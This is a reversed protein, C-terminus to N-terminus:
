SSSSLCLAALDVGYGFPPFGRCGLRPSFLQGNVHYAFATAPVQKTALRWAVNGADATRARGVQARLTALERRVSPPLWSSPVAGGLLGRLFAAPDPFDQFTSAEFLDVDTGRRRVETHLDAVEKIDVEIGIPALQRKVNEGWLRCADCDSAVALTATVDRGGMLARAGALDPAGVPYPERCSRYGPQSPPLLQASPVGPVTVAGIDNVVVRSGALGSRNLALAAARRVSPDSFPPRNANFALAEVGPTPVAFYRRQGEAAARSEPGWRAALAGTPDLIPDDLNVIGDWSGDEVRAVAQGPDIGERLAIADLVHARPGTYNPNRKLIMYEGTNFDAIYYPGASPITRQHGPASVAAGVDPVGIPSGVPVPCFFPLALRELLDASPRRLTITLTDDRARIGSIHDERGARFATEGVIDGIFGPGPARRPMRPSLAREISYSFTEATVPQNSPPSFRYGPRITFTYTRRDASLAPMSAAVEPLLHADGASGPYNLLKACTAYEVQFALGSSDLAPDNLALQYPRVLLKAVSGPLEEIQDEYTRGSAVGVLVRGGGAAIDPIPHDFGFTRTAGTVADIGTATGEDQDAVWLVGDAYSLPRAGEGTHYTAAVNGARDIKYVLGKAEDSVWGYGGGAAVYQLTGVPIGARVVSGTVLDLVMVGSFNSITWAVGADIAITVAGTVGEYRRVVRGTAPDVRLVENLGGRTVWISGEAVAVGTQAGPLAPDRPLPYRAVEAGLNIDIKALTRNGVEWLDNGAVAYARVESTPSIRKLVAGSKPDIEVFLDPDGAWAWFHGAAYSYNGQNVESPPIYGTAEGTKADLITMGPSFGNPATTEDSGLVAPVLVAVLTVVATVSAASAIVRLRRRSGERRRTFRGGLGPRLAPAEGTTRVLTEVDDAVPALHFPELHPDQRLIRQQLHQLSRGPDVGLEDALERRVRDFATLAEGQRGSRYLALMLRAWAGERFPYRAVLAELEGVLDAHRGLALDADIRQEVAALRLEELRGIEARAFPSGALDELPVGRFSALGERLTGAATVPDDSALARRGQDILFEFRELDLEGDDVRLVYGPPRTLLRDPDKDCHLAKRLRSVYTELTHGASPPPTEGWLDDILRDRSVVENRHLLLIALAARQKAGGLPVAAGDDLVELPGLILFEM